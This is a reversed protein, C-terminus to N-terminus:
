VSRWDRVVADATDCMKEWADASPGDYVAVAYFGARKATALATPSDEYVATESPTAGM